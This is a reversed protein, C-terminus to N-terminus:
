KLWKKSSCLDGTMERLQKAKPYTVATEDALLTTKLIDRETQNFTRLNFTMPNKKEPFRSSRKLNIM